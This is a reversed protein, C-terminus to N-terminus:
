KGRSLYLMLFKKAGSSRLSLAPPAYELSVNAIRSQDAEALGNDDFMYYARKGGEGVTVPLYLRMWLWDTPDVVEYEAPTWTGELTEYSLPLNPSHATSSVLLARTFGDNRVVKVQASLHSEGGTAYARYYFTWTSALIKAVDTLQFIWNALGYNGAKSIGQSIETGGSDAPTDKKFLYDTEINLLHTEQHKTLVHITM